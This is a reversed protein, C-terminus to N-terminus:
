KLQGDTYEQVHKSALDAVPPSMKDAFPVGSNQGDLGHCIQCHHQFHEAGRKVSQENDATPNQLEKGGITIEEKIERLVKKRCFRTRKGQM